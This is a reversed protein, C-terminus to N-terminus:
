HKLFTFSWPCGFPASGSCRRIQYNSPRPVTADATTSSSTGSVAGSLRSFRLLTASAAATTAYQRCVLDLSLHSKENMGLKYSFSVIISFCFSYFTFFLILLQDVVYILLFHLCVSESYSSRPERPRQEDTNARSRKPPPQANTYLGDMSPTRPRRSGANPSLHDPNPNPHPPLTPFARSSQQHRSHQRSPVTPPAMIQSSSSPPYTSLSGGGAGIHPPLLPLVLPGLSGGESIRTFAIRADKARSEVLSLYREIQEWSDQALRRRTDAEERAMEVQALRDEYDDILRKVTQAHKQQQDQNPPSASPDSTLTQILREAKEARKKAIALDRRLADIDRFADSLLAALQTNSTPPSSPLPRPSDLLDPPDM